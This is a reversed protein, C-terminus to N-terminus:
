VVVFLRLVFVGVVNQTKRKVSYKRGNISRIWIRPVHFRWVSRIPSSVLDTHALGRPLGPELRFFRARIGAGRGYKLRPVRSNPQTRVVPWRCPMPTKRQFKLAVPSHGAKKKAARKWSGISDSSANVEAWVRFRLAAGRRSASSYFLLTGEALPFGPARLSPHGRHFM